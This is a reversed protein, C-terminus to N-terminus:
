EFPEYLSLAFVKKRQGRIVQELVDKGWETGGLGRERQNEEEKRLSCCNEKASRLRNCPM